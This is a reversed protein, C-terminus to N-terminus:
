NMSLLENCRRSKGNGNGNNGSNGNGNGGSNCNGMNCNVNKSTDQNGNCQGTALNGNSYQCRRTATADGNGCTVSCTSEVWSTWSPNSGGSSASFM